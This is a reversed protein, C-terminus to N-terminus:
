RTGRMKGGKVLWPPAITSQVEDALIRAAPSRSSGLFVKDFRELMALPDDENVSNGLQGRLLKSSSPPPRPLPRSSDGARTSVDPNSNPRPALGANGGAGPLTAIHLHAPLPGQPAFREQSPDPPPAKSGSSYATYALGPGSHLSSSSPQRSASTPSLQDMGGFSTSRPPASVPSGVDMGLFPSSSAQEASGEQPSLFPNKSQLVAGTKSPMLAPLSALNDDEDILSGSTAHTQGHWQGPMSGNASSGHARSGISDPTFHRQWQGPMNGGAGAGGTDRSLNAGADSAIRRHATAETRAPPDYSSIRRSSPGDNDDEFGTSIGHGGPSEEQASGTRKSEVLSLHLAQELEEREREAAISARKAEDFQSEEWVKAEEEDSPQADPSSPRRAVVAPTTTAPPRSPGASPRRPPRGPPPAYSVTQTPLNPTSLPPM